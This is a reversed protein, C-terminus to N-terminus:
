DIILYNCTYPIKGSGQGIEFYWSVTSSESWYGIPSSLTTAKKGKNCFDGIM